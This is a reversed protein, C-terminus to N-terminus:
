QADTSAYFRGIKEFNWEFDMKVNVVSRLRHLLIVEVVLMLARLPLPTQGHILIFIIGFCFLKVFFKHHDGDSRLSESGALNRIYM